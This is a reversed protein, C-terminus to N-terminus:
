LNELVYVVFHNWMIKLLGSREVTEEAVLNMSPPDSLYGEGILVQDDFVLQGVVQDLEIPAYNTKPPFYTKLQVKDTTDPTTVVYFDDEASAKVTAQKGDLVPALGDEFSNGSLFVKQLHFKQKIQDLFTNAIAFRKYSDELGGDVNIMVVLVQMYNEYSLSILSSGSTESSGTVLGYANVREYPMNELLYNYTHVYDGAFRGRTAQTFELVEPFDAVLRQSIVALHRASLKNEDNLSSGPYRNDGLYDNSLGSANVLEATDLGWDEALQRIQNVAKEESGAVHEAMAITASTSASIVSAKTLEELTYSRNDLPVNPISPEFTLDYAYDSIPVQDTWQVKGDAVAQYTLYITLLRSLNAVPVVADADKEYLIKGTRLDVAIANQSDINLDDAKTLPLAVTSFWLATLLALIKKM